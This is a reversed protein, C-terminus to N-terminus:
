TLLSVQKLSDKLLDELKVTTENILQEITDTTERLTKTSYKTKDFLENAFHINIIPMYKIVNAQSIKKGELMEMNEFYYSQFVSLTFLYFFQLNEWRPKTTTMYDKWDAYPIQGEFYKGLSSIMLKISNIITISDRSKISTKINKAEDNLNIKNNDLELILDNFNNIKADVADWNNQTTEKMIIFLLSVLSWLKFVINYIYIVYNAQNVRDDIESQKKEQEMRISENIINNIKEIIENTEIPTDLTLKTKVENNKHSIVIKSYGEKEIKKISEIKISFEHEFKKVILGVKKEFIIINKSILLRGKIEKKDLNLIVSQFQGIIESSKM